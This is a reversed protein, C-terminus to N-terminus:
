KLLNFKKYNLNPLALAIIILLGGILSNFSPIEHYIFYGFIVVFVLEFLLLLSGKQAEIQSFGYLTLSLGVVVFLCFGLVALWINIPLLLNVPERTITLLLISFIFGISYTLFNVQFISYKNTLKKSTCMTLGFSMGSIVAFISPIISVECIDKIYIFSLGLLAFILSIIKVKNIKEKLFISGYVFNSIVSAGYFLFMVLGLSLHNVAVFFGFADTILLVGRFLFLFLDRKRIKSITKSFLAIILFILAIILIHTSLQYFLGMKTSIIRVFVGAFSYFFTALLISIIGLNKNNKFM